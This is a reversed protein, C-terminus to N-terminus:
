HLGGKMILLQLLSARICNIEEGNAYRKKFFIAQKDM